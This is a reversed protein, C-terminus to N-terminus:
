ASAAAPATAVARGGDLVWTVGFRDKVMGYLPSWGSAGLPQLVQGGQCLGEWRARLVEHSSFSLVVFFPSEGPAWARGSPVDYAMVRFGDGSAVQGWMLLQADAADGVQGAQQYTVASLEGGFVAQYFALAAAADGRFNLHTITQITM